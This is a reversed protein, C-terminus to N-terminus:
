RAYGSLAVLGIGYDFEVKLKGIPVLGDSLSAHEAEIQVLRRIQMIVSDVAVHFV